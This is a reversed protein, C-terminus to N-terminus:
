FKLIKLIFVYYSFFIQRRRRRVTKELSVQQHGSDKLVRPPPPPSPPPTAYLSRARGGGRSGSLCDQFPPLVFLTGELLASSACCNWDPPAAAYRSSGKWWGRWLSKWPSRLFISALHEPGGQIANCAPRCSTRIMIVASTRWDGMASCTTCWRKRGEEWREHPWWTM